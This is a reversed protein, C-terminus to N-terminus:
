ERGSLRSHIGGHRQHPSDNVHKRPRDHAAHEGEGSAEAGAFSLATHDQPCRERQNNQDGTHERQSYPARGGTNPVKKKPTTEGQVLTSRISSQQDKIRGGGSNVRQTHNQHTVLYRSFDSIDTPHLEPETSGDYYADVKKVARQM